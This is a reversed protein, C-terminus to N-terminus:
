TEGNAVDSIEALKRKRYGIKYRRDVSKVPSCGLMEVSSNLKDKLNSIEEFQTKKILTRRKLIKDVKRQLQLVVETRTNPQIISGHKRHYLLARRSLFLLKMKM